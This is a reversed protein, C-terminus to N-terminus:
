LHPALVIRDIAPKRITPALMALAIAAAPWTPTM